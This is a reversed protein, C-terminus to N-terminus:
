DQQRVKRRVSSFHRELALDQTWAALHGAGHHCARLEPQPDFIDSSHAVVFAATDLERTQLVAADVQVIKLDPFIARILGCVYQYVLGGALPGNKPLPGLTESKLGFAYRRFLDDARTHQMDIRM